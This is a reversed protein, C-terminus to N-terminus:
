QWDPRQLGAMSSPPLHTQRALAFGGAKATRDNVCGGYPIFCTKSGPETQAVLFPRVALGSFSTARPSDQCSLRCNGLRIWLSITPPRARHIWPHAPPTDM